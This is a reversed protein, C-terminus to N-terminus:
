EVVVVDGDSLRFQASSPEPAVLESARFRIRPPRDHSRVVFIRDRSAFDTLWGAAALAATVSFDRGLEYAGPTKVEGVVKVRVPAPRSIVVSVQPKVVVNDLRRQLEAAAENPSRGAVVVNGVTPQLYAGDERVLFEGTMSPQDRVQVFITDRPQILGAPSLAPPPVQQVWVYPQETACALPMGVLALAGLAVHLPRWARGRVGARPGDENGERKGKGKGKGKGRPSWAM